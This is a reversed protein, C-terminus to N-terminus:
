RRTYLNHEMILYKHILTIQYVKIYFSSITRYYVIKKTLMNLHIYHLGVLHIIWHNLYIQNFTYHQTVIFNVVISVIVPSVCNAQQMYYFFFIVGNQESNVLPIKPIHFKEQNEYSMVYYFNIKLVHFYFYHWPPIVSHWDRASSLELLSFPIQLM